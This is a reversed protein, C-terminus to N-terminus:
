INKVHNIIIEEEVQRWYEYQDKGMYTNKWKGVEELMENCLALACGYIQPQSMGEIDMNKLIQKAKEKVEM